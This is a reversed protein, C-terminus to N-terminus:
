AGREFCRDPLSPLAAATSCFCAHLHLRSRTARSRLGVVHASEARPMSARQDGDDIGASAASRKCGTAANADTTGCEALPERVGEGTARGRGGDGDASGAAAATGHGQARSCTSPPSMIPCSLLPRIPCRPHYASASRPSLPSALAQFAALAGAASPSTQADQRPTMRAPRARHPPARAGSPLISTQDDGEVAEPAAFTTMPRRAGGRRQCHDLGSALGLRRSPHTSTARSEKRLAGAPLRHPSGVPPPSAPHIDVPPWRNIWERRLRGGKRHPPARRRWCRLRM